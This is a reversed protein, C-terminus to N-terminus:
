QGAMLVILFGFSIAGPNMRKALSSKIDCLASPALPVPSIEERSPHTHLHPLHARVHTPTHTTKFAVNDSHTAHLGRRTKRTTLKSGLPSEEMSTFDRSMQRPNDSAPGVIGLRASRYKFSQSQGHLYALGVGMTATPGAASM